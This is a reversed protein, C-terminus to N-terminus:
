LVNQLVDVEGKNNEIIDDLESCSDDINYKANKLYDLAESAIGRLEDIKEDKEKLEQKLERVKRELDEVREEVLPIATKTM